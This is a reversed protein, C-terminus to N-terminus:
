KCEDARHERDGNQNAKKHEDVIRPLDPFSDAGLRLQQPQHATLKTAVVNYIAFARGM